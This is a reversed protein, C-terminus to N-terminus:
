ASDDMRLRLDCSFSNVRLMRETQLVGHEEFRVTGHRPRFDVSQVSFIAWWGVGDGALASRVEPDCLVEARLEASMAAVAAEHTAATHCGAMVYVTGAHPPLSHAWVLLGYDIGTGHGGLRDITPRYVREAGQVALFTGHSSWEGRGVFWDTGLRERRCHALFGATFKNVKPSGITLVNDGPQLGELPESEAYNRHLREDGPGVANVAGLVADLAGMSGPEAMSYSNGQQYLRTSSGVLVVLRGSRRPDILQRLTDAEPRLVDLLQQIAFEPDSRFDVYLRDRLLPPIDADSALSPLVVPLITGESMRLGAALEEQVWRSNISNPSILAIIHENSAIAQNIRETIRDGVRIEWKDIWVRIGAQKLRRALDEAFEGDYHSYSIFASRM